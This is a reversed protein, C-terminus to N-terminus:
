RRASMLGISMPEEDSEELLGPLLALLPRLHEHTPVAFGDAGFLAFAAHRFVTDHLGLLLRQLEMRLATDLSHRVVILDSPIPGAHALIQVHADGWPAKSATMHGEHMMNRPDFYAYTAGVDADGLLVAHVVADHSGVFQDSVFARELHVGLMRLHARIILYGAASSKDVWAARLGSMEHVPAIRLSPLAFLATSYCAHGSRLPLAIPDIWGKAAAQVALIPPLWAVDVSGRAVFDLLTKYDSVGIAVARIPSVRSLADCFGELLPRNGAGESLAIGVRLRQLEGSNGGVTMVTPTYAFENRRRWYFFYFIFFLILFVRGSKLRAREM